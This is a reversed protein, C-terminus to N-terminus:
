KGGKLEEMWMRRPLRVNRIEVKAPLHEDKFRPMLLTQQQWTPNGVPKWWGYPVEGSTGGPRAKFTSKALFGPLAHCCQSRQSSGPSFSSLYPLPTCRIIHFVAIQETAFFWTPVFMNAKMAAYKWSVLCTQHNKQHALHRTEWCGVCLTVSRQPALSPLTHYETGPVECVKQEDIFMIMGETFSFWTDYTRNGMTWICRALDGNM